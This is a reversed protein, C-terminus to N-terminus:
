LDKWTLEFGICLMIFKTLVLIYSLICILDYVLVLLDSTLAKYNCKQLVIM